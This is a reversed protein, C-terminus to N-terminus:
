RMVEPDAGGKEPCSNMLKRQDEASVHKYKVNCKPLVSVLYAPLANEEGGEPTRDGEQETKLSEGM